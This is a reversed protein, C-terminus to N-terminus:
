DENDTSYEISVVHQADSEEIIDCSNQPVMQNLQTMSSAM